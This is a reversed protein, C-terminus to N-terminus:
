CESVQDIYSYLKDLSLHFTRSYEYLQIEKWEQFNLPKDGTTGIEKIRSINFAADKQLNKIHIKIDLNKPHTTLLTQYSCGYTLNTLSYRILHPREYFVNISTQTTPYPNTVSRTLRHTYGRGQTLCYWYAVEPWLDKDREIVYTNYQAITQQLCDIYDSESFNDFLNM